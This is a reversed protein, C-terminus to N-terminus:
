KGPAPKQPGGYYPYRDFKEAGGVVRPDQTRKLGQTLRESLEKQTKAYEPRGAVNDLQEPDKKLDYLEEGPRKAFALDFSRKVKPDDRHQMLFTKTPGNDCDAFSNGIHAKEAEPVGNPWLEPRFNRVYLFEHTRIARSPYGALNDKEQSPVHREKGYLVHDRAPDVRGAEESRLVNMLSRGTMSDSIKVGAAELFTPALDSLSVLDGITRGTKIKKGWRVALPVRTGLDYLNSKGRPFPMGHDGTIVVLTNDLEGAKELAALAEGVERDFRQVEFYYDAVDNRVTEHDPFCAPLRIKELSMGSKKGSQWDYPRHPDPSGFWFCFPTDKPRAKLFADFTRFTPGAPNEKRGGPEIRGPGWAKRSHGVFYGADRLLEPYTRFKAQLTSWLNASEELRWHYQGTLLAARSPTCSPSSVFAHTFLVGERATRDFTPTKVVPDGYCGAHPFGWDDAVAFFVNTKAEAAPAWGPVAALLVLLCARILSQAQV